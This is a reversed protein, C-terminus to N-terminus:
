LHKIQEAFAKPTMGTYKTFVRIFTNSSNFGVQKGLTSVKIKTNSYMIEKAKEIRYNNLYNKYNDGVAKKFLIGCYKESVNMKKAMDVLMIDEWYHEHIYTLMEEAISNESDKKNNNVYLLIDELIKRLKPIIDKRNWQDSLTSFDDNEELFKHSDTKLEQVIRSITGIIAFILNKFAKPSLKDGASNENILDNFIEVAKIDGNLVSHILKNEIVLPYYYSNRDLDEKIQKMTLITRQNYLFKYELIKKSEEFCEKIKKTGYAVNSIAVRIDYDYDIEVNELLTHIMTIAEKVKDCQIIIACTYYNINAYRLKNIDQTYALIENKYLFINDDVDEYPNNLFELVAVCYNDDGILHDKYISKNINIGFLLDRNLRQVILNNRESIALKLQQNLTKIMNSNQKLIKFEDVDKQYNDDSFFDDLVEKIPRYLKNTIIRSLFISLFTLLIFPILFYVFIMATDINKDKYSYLLIWDINYFSQKFVNYDKYIFKNSALDSNQFAEFIENAPVNADEKMAFIGNNNCLYWDQELNEEVFSDYNITTFYLVDRKRYAKKTIYCIQSSGDRNNITFAMYSSKNEFHDYIGEIKETTLGLNKKFYYDKAESSVPTIVLSDEDLFTASIQFNVNNVKSSSKRIKQQVKLLGLYFMENNDSESWNKAEDSEMVLDLASNIVELKIQSNNLTTKITNIITTEYEKSRQDMVIKMFISMFSVIILTFVLLFVTNLKKKYKGRVM